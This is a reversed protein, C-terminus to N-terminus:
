TRQRGHSLSLSAASAKARPSEGNRKPVIIETEGFEGLRVPNTFLNLYAVGGPLYIADPKRVEDPWEDEDFLETPWENLM